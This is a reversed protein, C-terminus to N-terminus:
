RQLQLAQNAINRVAEDVTISGRAALNIQTTTYTEWADFWVPIGTVFVGKGYQSQELLNEGGLFEGENVLELLMSPRSPTIRLEFYTERVIEDSLFWRIFQCAADFNQSFSSIAFGDLYFDLSASRVDATGPILSPRAKDVIASAEPNQIRRYFGPSAFIFAADGALFVDAQGGADTEVMAPDILDGLYNVMFELAQNGGSGPEGFLPTYNEDFLPGGTFLVSFLQWRSAAAAQAALPQLLPYEVIGAEKIIRSAEILEDVTEPIADIGARELIETNAYFIISDFYTPVAMLTDNFTFADLGLLDARLEDTICTEAPEVFGAAIHGALPVIYSSFVDAPAVRAASSTTVRTNLGEYDVVEQIIDIGTEETFRDLLEEPMAFWPYALFRLPRQAVSFSIFACVFLVIVKTTKNWNNMNHDGKIEGASEDISAKFENISAM